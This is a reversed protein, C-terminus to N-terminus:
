PECECVAPLISAGGTCADDSITTTTGSVCDQGGGGANDPQGTAWPLFTAAGGLVTQYSGEIV